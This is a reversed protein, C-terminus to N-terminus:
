RSGAAPRQSHGSRLNSPSHSASPLLPLATQSQLYAIGASVAHIEDRIGGAPSSWGTSALASDAQRIASRLEAGATTAEEALPRLSTLAASVHATDPERQLAALQRDLTDTAQGLRRAWDPLNGLPGSAAALLRGTAGRSRRLDHRLEAVEQRPGAPLARAQLTILTAAARESAQAHVSRYRTRLARAARRTVLVAAIAASAAFLLLVVVAILIFHVAAGPSTIPPRPPRAAQEPRSGAPEGHVPDPDAPLGRVCNGANGYGEAPAQLNTDGRCSVWAVAPRDTRTTSTM